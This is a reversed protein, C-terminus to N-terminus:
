LTKPKKKCSHILQEEKTLEKGCHQCGIKEEPDKKKPPQRLQTRPALALDDPPEPPKFVYPYPYRVGGKDRERRINRLFKKRFENDMNFLNQNVDIRLREVDEVKILKVIGNETKEGILKLFDPDEEGEDLQIIVYLSGLQNRIEQIRKVANIKLRVTSKSGRWLYIKRYEDAVIIYCAEPNLM